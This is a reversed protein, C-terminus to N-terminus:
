YLVIGMSIVKNTAMLHSASVKSQNIILKVKDTYIFVIKDFM